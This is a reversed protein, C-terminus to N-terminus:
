QARRMPNAIADCTGGHHPPAMRLVQRVDGGLGIEISAHTMQNERINADFSPYPNSQSLYFFYDLTRTRVKRHLESERAGASGM